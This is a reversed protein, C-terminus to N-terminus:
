TVAFRIMGIIWVPIKKGLRKYLLHLFETYFGVLGPNGPICIVIEPVDDLPEVVWRGWTIVHTPGGSITIFGEKM